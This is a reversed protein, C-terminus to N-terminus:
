VFKVQASTISAAAVGTFTVTDAADLTLVASGNVNALANQFAQFNAFQATSFVITDTANFGNVVDTGFSGAFTLIDRYSYALSLFDAGGGFYAYEDSSLLYASANVLMASTGGEISDGNTGTDYLSVQNGLGVGDITNGGGIVSAQAGYLYLYQNSAHVVDWAGNTGTLSVQLYAASPDLFITDAGGIVNASQYGRNVIVSAGSGHINVDGYYPGPADYLSVQAGSGDLYINSTYGYINAQASNVTIAQAEGQLDFKVTDWAGNTQYLSVANDDGLGLDVSQGGGYVAVQARTITTTGAAGQVRDWVGQTYSLYATEGAAQFNVLAGGSVSDVEGSVVDITGAGYVQDANGAASDVTATSASGGVFWIVDDNGSLVAEANNLTVSVGDGGVTDAVGNTKYLSVANAGQGAVGFVTVGGGIISLSAGYLNVKGSSAYLASWAGPTAAYLNLIDDSQDFSVVDGDGTLSVTVDDNEIVSGGSGNVTETYGAGARGYFSVADATSAAFTVTAGNGHVSLSAGVLSFQGGDGYAGDWVGPYPSPSADFEVRNVGGLLWVTAFGVSVDAGDLTALTGLTNNSSASTLTQATGGSPHVNLTGNYEINQGGAAYVTGQFFQVVTGALASQSNGDVVSISLSGGAGVGVGASPTFQLGQLAASVQAATGTVTYLGTASNYVGGDTAANPDFLSGDAAQSLQVSLTLSSSTADTVVAGAFLPYPAGTLLSAFTEVGSISPGGSM